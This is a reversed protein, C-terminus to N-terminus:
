WKIDFISFKSEKVRKRSSSRESFRIWLNSFKCLNVRRSVKFKDPFEILSRGLDASSGNLHKFVNFSEFFLIDTRWSTPFREISGLRSFKHM